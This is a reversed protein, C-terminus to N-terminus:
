TDGLALEKAAEGVLTAGSEGLALRVAIFSSDGLSSDCVVTTASCELSLGCTSFAVAGIADKVMGGELWLLKAEVM